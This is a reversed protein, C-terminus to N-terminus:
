EHGHRHLQPLGDRARATCKACHRTDVAREPATAHLAAGGMHSSWVIMLSLSHTALRPEWRGCLSAARRRETSSCLLRQRPIPRGSPRVVAGVCAGGKVRGKVHRESSCGCPGCARQRRRLHWDKSMTGIHITGHARGFRKGPQTTSCTERLQGHFNWVKGSQCLLKRECPARNVAVPRVDTTM